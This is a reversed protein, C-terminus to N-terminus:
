CHLCIFSFNSIFGKCNPIIDREKLGLVSSASAPPDTLELGAQDVYLTGPCGPSCPSVEIFHFLIFGQCTLASSIAWRNHAPQELLCDTSNRASV